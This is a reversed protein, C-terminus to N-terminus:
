WSVSVLYKGIPLRGRRVLDNILIGLMRQPAENRKFQNLRDEEWKGLIGSGDFELTIDNGVEEGPAIEYDIGYEQQIYNELNGYDVRNYTHQSVIKNAAIVGIPLRVM